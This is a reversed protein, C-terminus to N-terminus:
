GEETEGERREDEGASVAVHQELVDAVDATPGDGLEGAPGEVEDGGEELGDEVSRAQEAVDAEDAHPIPEMTM